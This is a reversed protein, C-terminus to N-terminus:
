PVGSLLDLPLRLWVKAWKSQPPVRSTLLTLRLM